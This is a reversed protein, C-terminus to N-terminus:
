EDGPMTDGLLLGWPKLPDIHDCIVKVIAVIPISLFMGPIGWLAGFAIVVVVSILANIRVKSAVVKPVILNNDIFQIILYLILVYVAFWASDKTVLAIMMPLAVAIIGGLYPIVNLLAGLIGLVIAYDIGLILLGVSNLIAVIVAEIVLGSLYRQIVIKIQSIINSVMSHHTAGFLRHVFELLLPQYYLVMIVYVPILFLLVLSNGVTVLTQGVASSGMNILWDTTQSIWTNIKDPNLSFYASAWTITQNILSSFKEILAPFSASFLSIQSFLFTGFAVFLLFTLFMTLVIAWIRGVKKRVFFSVVPHLVIAIMTGFIVPIMIEQTVYLMAILVYIGILLISVRVYFPLKITNM